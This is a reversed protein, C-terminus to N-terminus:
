CYRWENDKHEKPSTIVQTKDTWNRRAREQAEPTFPGSARTLSEPIKFVRGCRSCEWVKDKGLFHMLYQHKGQCRILSMM